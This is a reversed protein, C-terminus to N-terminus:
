AFIEGLSSITRLVKAHELGPWQVRMLFHNVGLLENYRQVEEKVYAKDGIIFRDKVFDEFPQNFSEAGESQKDLGWSSYAGYKYELAAKCEELAKARTPGVYCERTIPVEAPFSKNVSKLTERYLKMQPVLERLHAFNTILWADGIKAARKVAADVVGGIWIPPGGPRVPKLGIGLNELKFIKGNYTVRDETWLRRMIEVSETLRQARESLPVQFTNFEAERYGVGMGLVYNGGTLLDLTVADEAVHAPNLLPMVLINPGMLMGEAERALYAMMPIPALMQMPQTLYHHPVWLSGFGSKRALRVQEIMESRANLVNTEPTFQTTLYLGVKM